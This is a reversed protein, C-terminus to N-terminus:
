SLTKKHYPFNINPYPPRIFYFFSGPADHAPEAKPDEHWILGLNALPRTPALRPLKPAVIAPKAPEPEVEAIVPQAISPPEPEPGEQHPTCGLALGLGVGISPVSLGRM